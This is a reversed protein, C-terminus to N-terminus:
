QGHRIGPEGWAYEIPDTLRAGPVNAAKSLKGLPLVVRGWTSELMIAFATYFALIASAILVWAGTHIWGSSGDLYGVALFAAGVALSTLVAVLGISEALAAIAGAATIAALTLFWFGLEPFAGHPVTIAGAAVFGFLIGYAIWFSGWMGHMATALGDRARFSWLGAAFQAVGGFVAAYPFLYVPSGNDGYWGALNAAVMFTAAAFGFLGLISPAAVPQLMVRSNARWSTAETPPPASQFHNSRTTQTAM